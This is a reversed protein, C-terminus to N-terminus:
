ASTPVAVSVADVVSLLHAIEPFYTTQYQMAISQGRAEDLDSVGVLSAESLTSYIRAHHQGLHGVGIVGVKLQSM